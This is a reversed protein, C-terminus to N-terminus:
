GQEKSILRASLMLHMLTIYVDLFELSFLCSMKLSKLLTFYSINHTHLSLSLSLSSNFLFDTFHQNIVSQTIMMTHMSFFILAFFVEGNSNWLSPFYTSWTSRIFLTNINESIYIFLWQNSKHCKIYICRIMEFYLMWSLFSLNSLLLFVWSLLYLYM